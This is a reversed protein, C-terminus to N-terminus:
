RPRALAPPPVNASVLTEDRLPQNAEYSAISRLLSDALPANGQEIALEWAQRSARIAEDFRGSEAYAAGLIQLSVVNSNGTARAVPEALEVALSGNRLSADPATALVWALNTRANLNEPHIKLSQNWHAVAEPLRGRRSIALALNNHADANNANIKLAAEAHSIAESMRGQRLLLDALSAHAFDNQPAVALARTWLSESDRWSAALHWASVALGGLVIAAGAALVPRRFRWHRALDAIGWVVILYLGIQPLYTYRDARGQSGAQVIGSVPALMALYWFWGTFLYPFRKRCLIAVACVGILFVASFIVQWMPINSAYGYFVALRAPYFMQGVYIVSSILANSIRSSLPVAQVSGLGATHTLFLIAALGLSLALLPIKEVILRM